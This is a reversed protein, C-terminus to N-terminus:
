TREMTSDINFGRWDLRCLHHVEACDLGRQRSQPFGCSRFTDLRMRLEPPKAEKVKGQSRGPCRPRWAVVEGGGGRLPAGLGVEAGLRELLAVALGELGQNRPQRETLALRLDLAPEQLLQAATLLRNAILFV